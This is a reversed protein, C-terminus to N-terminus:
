LTSTILSLFYSVIVLLTFIDAFVDLRHLSKRSMLFDCRILSRRQQSFNRCAFSFLYNRQM